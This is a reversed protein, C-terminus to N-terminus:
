HSKLTRPLLASSESAAYFLLTFVENLLRFLTTVTTNEQGLADGIMTPCREPSYLTAEDDFFIELIAMM